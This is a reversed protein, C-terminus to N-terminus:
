QLRTFHYQIKGIFVADGDGRHSNNNDSEVSSEREETYGSDKSTASTPKNQHLKEEKIKTEEVIVNEVVNKSCCAFLRM